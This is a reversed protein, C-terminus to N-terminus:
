RGLFRIELYRFVPYTVAVFGCALEFGIDGGRHGKGGVAQGVPGTFWVQSMGLVIGAVGCLFAAIAGLGIPLQKRDNWTEAARYNAFNGRRFIFHEEILVTVFIALWYGLIGLFYELTSAFQDAGVISIPIYIATAVCPWM